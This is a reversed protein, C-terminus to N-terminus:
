HQTAELSNGIGPAVQNDSSFQNTAANFRHGTEKQVVLKTKGTPSLFRNGKMVVHDSEGANFEFVNSTPLGNGCDNFENKLVSLGSVRTVSFGIGGDFGCRKFTNGTLTIGRTISRPQDDGIIGAQVSADFTNDRFEIGNIGRVEFPRHSKGLVHNDHVVINQSPSGASPPALMTFHFATQSIGEITNNAIEINTPAASVQPPVYLIVVAVGGIDKFHNNVVRLNRLVNFADANPEFDIAGPMKERSVNKFQCREILMGDCDLVSIGNRNQNNIGDFVCDTVVVNHNHRETKATDSCGIYLGDGQFGVFSVHEVRADSVGNLSVLHLFESFGGKDSAGRMQMSQLVINHLTADPAGSDAYLIHRTRPKLVLITSEGAGRLTVGSRLIIGGVLFSGAPVDVVDFQAIASKFADSSDKKGSPDAGFQMVSGSRGQGYARPLTAAALMAGGARLVGRRGQDPLTSIAPGAPLIRQM